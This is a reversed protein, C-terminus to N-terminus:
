TVKRLPRAIGTGVTREAVGRMFAPALSSGRGEEFPFANPYFSNGSGDTQSNERWYSGNMDQTIGPTPVTIEQPVETLVIRRACMYHRVFYADDLDAIGVGGDGAHIMQNNGIYIGVHSAFHGYGTTNQFFVLDGCQLDEKAIVVGNQLQAAVTRHIKVGMQAFVYQTLGSCDFGWPSTGGSVYRVGLYKQAETRLKDRLDLAENASYSPLVDTQPSNADCNVYYDGSADRYVQSVAIYGTLDFCDIKYFDNVTGQVTIKTGDELCGIVLAGAYASIRVLSVTRGTSEPTEESLEVPVALAPAALSLAMCLLLLCATLRGMRKIKLM